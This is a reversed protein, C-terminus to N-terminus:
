PKKEPTASVDILGPLVSGTPGMQAWAARCNKLHMSTCMSLQTRDMEGEVCRTGIRWAEVIKDAEAKFTAADPGSDYPAAFAKGKETIIGGPCFEAAARVLGYHQGAQAATLAPKDGAEAGTAGTVALLAFLGARAAYSSRM